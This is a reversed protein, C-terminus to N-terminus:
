RKRFLELIKLLNVIIQKRDDIVIYKFVSM